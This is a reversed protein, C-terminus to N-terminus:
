KGKNLKNLIDNLYSQDLDDGPELVKKTQPEDKITIPDLDVMNRYANMQEETSNILEEQQKNMAEIKDKDNQTLEINANKLLSM